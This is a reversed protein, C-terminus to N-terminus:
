FKLAWAGKRFVAEKKGDATVGDIDLESSGIMFDVHVLSDNAGNADLTELDMDEGQEMNTPYAKGLAIHCSANEDFLTNYFILGSQSIPSEHPVLAVEGLRKAGDDSELLHKLVDEGQEAEFDVVAGDKFTLTFNDILSGGYNLPKTSSVTGNVGYKDPMSFVEETPINPNFEVGTKAVASGGHWIHKNALGLELNTGPGTFVLKDYQKNTLVERAKRLTENHKNWAAIPDGQDVRSMSLISEWMKTVAEESSMNPFVKQSWKTTPISIVTWPITDNMVEKNVNRMAESRAKNSMAVRSSDIDALLDPDSSHISIFAAGDKVFEEEMDVQWKPVTQLVEDTAHKFKLHTLTDDAWNIHVNKAGLEYARKALLRAFEAGEIPARLMVAQNKQINIGKELILNAFDEMLQKHDM